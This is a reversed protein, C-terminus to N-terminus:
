KDLSINKNKIGAIVFFAYGITGLIGIFVPSHIMSKSTAVM